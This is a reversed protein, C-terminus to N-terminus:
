WTRHPNSAPPARSEGAMVLASGAPDLKLGSKLWITPLSPALFWSAVPQLFPLPGAHCLACCHQDSHHHDSASAIAAVQAFVMISILLLIAIRRPPSVTRIREANIMPM